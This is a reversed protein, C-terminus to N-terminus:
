NFYESLSSAFANRHIVPRAWHRRPVCTMQENIHFVQVLTNPLLVISVTDREHGTEPTFCQWRCRPCTEEERKYLQLQLVLWLPRQAGRQTISRKRNRVPTLAIGYVGILFGYRRWVRAGDERAVGLFSAQPLLVGHADRFQNFAYIRHRGLHIGRYQAFAVQSTQLLMQLEALEPLTAEIAVHRQVISPLECPSYGDIIARVRRQVQAPPPPPPMRLVDAVRLEDSLRSFERRFVSLEWGDHRHSQRGAAAKVLQHGREQLAGVVRMLDFPLLLKMMPVVAAMDVLKPTMVFKEGATLADLPADAGVAAAAAAVAGAGDDPESLEEVDDDDDDDHCVDDDDDDDADDDDDSGDSDFDHNDGAPPQDANADDAVASKKRTMHIRATQAVPMDFLNAFKRALAIYDNHRRTLRWEMDNDDDDAGANTSRELLHQWGLHSEIVEAAEHCWEALEPRVGHRLMRLVEPMKIYMDAFLAGSGYTTKTDRAGKVKASYKVFFPRRVRRLTLSPRVSKVAANLADFAAEGASNAKRSRDEDCEAQMSYHLVIACVNRMMTRKLGVADTHLWEPGMRLSGILFSFLRMHNSSDFFFSAPPMRAGKWPLAIGASRLAASAKTKVRSEQAVVARIREFIERTGDWRRLKLDNLSGSPFQQEHKAAAPSTPAVPGVLGTMNWRESMDVPVYYLAGVILVSEGNLLKIRIGESLQALFPAIVVRYFADDNVVSSDYVAVLPWIARFSADDILLTVRVVSIAGGLVIAEDRYLGVGVVTAGAEVAQQFAKHFLGMAPMNHFHEPFPVDAPAPEFTRPLRGGHARTAREVCWAALDLLNAANVNAGAVNFTNVRLRVNLEGADRVFAAVRERNGPLKVDDNNYIKSVTALTENAAERSLHMLAVRDLEALLPAVRREEDSLAAPGAAASMVVSRVDVDVTNQESYRFNPVAIEGNLAQGVATVTAGFTVTVAAPADRQIAALDEIEVADDLDSKSAEEDVDAPEAADHLEVAVAVLEGGDGGNADDNFGDDFGGDFGNDNLGDGADADDAIPAGADNRDDAGDALLNANPAGSSVRARAELASNHKATALHTRTHKSEVDIQCVICHYAAIDFGHDNLYHDYLKTGSKSGACNAVVCRAGHARRATLTTAGLTELACFPKRDFHKQRRDQDYQVTYPCKKCPPVEEAGSMIFFVKTEHVLYSQVLM